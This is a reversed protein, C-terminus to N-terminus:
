KVLIRADDRMDITQIAKGLLNHKTNLSVLNNIASTPNNEPLMVTIGGTTHINWRRNEIWELYDINGILNHAARTIESIDNPLKGRFVINAINRSPTPTNIITGDASLPYYNEGDTWTAIMKYMATRVIINGNPLHRIAVDKVGPVASVRARLTNLDLSSSRTKPPVSVANAIASLNQNKTDSHISINHIYSLRGHGSRTMITRTAFYIALIIAFIFCLWFWISRKM